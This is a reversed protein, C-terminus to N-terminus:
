QRQMSFPLPPPAKSHQQNMELEIEDEKKTCLM